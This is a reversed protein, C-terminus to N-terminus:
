QPVLQPRISYIPQVDDSELGRSYKFANLLQEDTLALLADEYHAPEEKKSEELQYRLEEASDAGTDFWEIFAECADQFNYYVGSNFELPNSM